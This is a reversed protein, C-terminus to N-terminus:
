GPDNGYIRSGDLYSLPQTLYWRHLSSSGRPKQTLYLGVNEPWM